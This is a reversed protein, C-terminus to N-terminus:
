LRGLRPPLGHKDHTREGETVGQRFEMLLLEQLKSLERPQPRNLLVHTLVALTQGCAGPRTAVDIWESIPHGLIADSLRYRSSSAEAARRLEHATIAEPMRKLM